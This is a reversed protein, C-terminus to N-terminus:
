PEPYEWSDVTSASGCPQRSKGARMRIVSGGSAITTHSLTSPQRNVALDSLSRGRLEITTPGKQGDVTLPWGDVSKEAGHAHTVM